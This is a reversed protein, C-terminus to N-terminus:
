VPIAGYLTEPLRAAADETLSKVCALYRRGREEAFAKPYLGEMGTCFCLRASNEEQAEWTDTSIISRRLTYGFREYYAFLSPKAPILFLAAFGRRDAEEKARRLLRGMYGRRRHAEDTALAYLYGLALGERKPVHAEMECPLMYLASVLGGNEEMCFAATESFAETFFLSLFAEEDHFAQAWLRKLAPIDATRAPRVSERDM